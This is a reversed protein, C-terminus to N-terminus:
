AGQGWRALLSALGVVPEEPYNRRTSGQGFVLHNRCMAPCPYEQDIVRQTSKLYFNIGVFTPCPINLVNRCLLYLLVCLGPTTLIMVHYLIMHLLFPLFDGQIRSCRLSSAVPRWSSSVYSTREMIQCTIIIQHKGALLLRLHAM